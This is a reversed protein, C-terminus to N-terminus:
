FSLLPRGAVKLYGITSSLSVAPLFPTLYTSYPFRTAKTSIAMSGCSRLRSLRQLQWRFPQFWGVHLRVMDRPYGLKDLLGSPSLQDAELHGTRSLRGDLANADLHLRDIAWALDDKDSRPMPIGEFSDFGHLMRRRMGFRMNAQAMVGLCGGKWTGCEVLDGPINNAECYRVRDALSILGDYSVMAHHRVAFAMERLTEEEAYGRNLVDRHAIAEELAIYNSSFRYEHDGVPREISKAHAMASTYYAGAYARFRRWLHEPLRAFSALPSNSRAASIKM